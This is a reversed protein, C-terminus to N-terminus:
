IEFLNIKVHMAGQIYQEISPNTSMTCKIKSSMQTKISLKFDDTSGTFANIKNNTM